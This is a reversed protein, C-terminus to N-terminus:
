TGLKRSLRQIARRADAGPKEIDRMGHAAAEAGSGFVPVPSKYGIVEPAINRALRLALLNEAGHTAIWGACMNGDRQHCDFRGLAGKELQQFPEGDYGPLKEYEERAWLGSPVDRRYPCTKCPAKACTYKKAMTM